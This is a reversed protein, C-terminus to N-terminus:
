VNDLPIQVWTDKVCLNSIGPYRNGLPIWHQPLKLFLGLKQGLAFDLEGEKVIGPLGQPLGYPRSPPRLHCRTALLVHPSM